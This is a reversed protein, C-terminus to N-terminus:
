KRLFINNKQNVRIDQSPKEKERYSKSHTPRRLSRNQDEMNRVEVYSVDEIERYFKIAINEDNFALGIHCEKFSKTSM